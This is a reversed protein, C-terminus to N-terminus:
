PTGRRAETARAPTTSWLYENSLEPPAPRRLAWSGAGAKSLIVAGFGTTAMAWTFVLATIMLIMGAAPVWRLLIAPAWILLLGVVGYVLYRYTSWGSTYQAAQGRRHVYIEGVVRAVALYGGVFAAAVALVFGVIAVPIALVGVVTLVLGITLTVLAPLLLPQAFLGAFFARIPSKRVTAAVVELRQPVFFLAGFGLSALAVLTGFLGAVDTVFRSLGFSSGAPAGLGQRALSRALDRSIRRSMQGANIAANLDRIAQNMSDVRENAEAVAALDNDLGKRANVMAAVDPLPGALTAADVSPLAATIAAAAQQAGPGLTRTPLSKLVLVLQPTSLDGAKSLVARWTKEFPGGTAYSGVSDGNVRVVGGGVAMSLQSGDSLDFTVEAARQSVSTTHGVAQRQSDTKHTTTAQGAALSPAAVVAAAAVLLPSVKACLM